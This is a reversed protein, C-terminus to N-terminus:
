GRDLGDLLTRGIKTPQCTAPLRALNRHRVKSYSRNLELRLADLYASNNAYSGRLMVAFVLLYM